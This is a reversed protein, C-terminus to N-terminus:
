NDNQCTDDVLVFHQVIDGDRYQAEAELNTPMFLIDRATCLITKGHQFNLFHTGHVRGQTVQTWTAIIRDKIIIDNTAPLSRYPMISHESQSTSNQKMVNMCIIKVKGTSYHFM